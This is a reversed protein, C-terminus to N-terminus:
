PVYEYTGEGDGRHKELSFFSRIEGNAPLDSTEIVYKM